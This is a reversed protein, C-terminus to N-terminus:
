AAEEKAVVNVKLKPEVGKTLKVAVDYIGLTKIPETLDIKRKDIAQGIVKQLETAINASTISGHMREKTGMKVQFILEKGDIEAALKKHKETEAKIELRAKVMAVSNSDSVLALKRPLLYNRGYGDAVEKIDGAKAVNKVDELFIVKM